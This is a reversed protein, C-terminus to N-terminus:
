RTGACCEPSYHSFDVYRSREAAGAPTPGSMTCVGEHMGEVMVNSEKEAVKLVVKLDDYQVARPLVSSPYPM